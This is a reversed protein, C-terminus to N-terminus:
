RVIEIEIGLEAEIVAVKLSSLPTDYGKVDEYRMRRQENDWYKFDARYSLQRNKKSRVPKGGATLKIVFQCQIDRIV